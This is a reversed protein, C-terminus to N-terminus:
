GNLLMTATETDTVLENVLGSSVAAKIAAVKHRGSAIGIRHPARLIDDVPIAILKRNLDIDAVEGAKDVIYGYVSGVCTAKHGRDSDSLYPIFAPNNLPLSSAGGIGTAVADLIKASDFTSKLLPESTLVNRLHETSAYLPANLFRATGFYASSAAYVIETQGSTAKPVDCCGTLQVVTIPMRISQPLQDVVSELTKGWTLGLTSNAKLVEHIRQAGLNGMKMLGDLFSSYQTNTVIANTLPFADLLGQELIRNREKSYNIRIELVQEDRADQILRAVKFRTVNYRKAIEVQTVQQNFYLDAITALLDRREDGSLAEYDM